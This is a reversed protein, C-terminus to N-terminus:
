VIREIKGTFKILLDANKNPSLELNESNGFGVGAFYLRADKEKAHAKITEMWIVDYEEPDDPYLSFKVLVFSLKGDKQAIFQPSKSMKSNVALFVFKKKEMQKGVTNMALQHLEQSTYEM